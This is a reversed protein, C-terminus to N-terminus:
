KATTQAIFKRLDGLTRYGSIVKRPVADDANSSGVKASEPDIISVTWDKLSMSDSFHNPTKAHEWIGKFWIESDGSTKSAEPKFSFKLDFAVSGDAPNVSGNVKWPPPFFSTSNPSAIIISRFEETLAFPTNKVVSEPGEPFAYHLLNIALQCMLVPGDLLDLESEKKPKLGNVLLARGSIMMIEGLRKEKGSREDVSIKLDSNEALEFKWKTKYSQQPDTSELAVNNFQEWSIYETQATDHNKHPTQAASENAPTQEAHLQGFASSLTIFLSVILASKM